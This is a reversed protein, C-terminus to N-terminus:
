FRMFQLIHITVVCTGIVIRIVRLTQDTLSPDKARLYSDIGDLILFIGFLFAFWDISIQKLPSNLLECHVGLCFQILHIFLICAGILIRIVRRIQAAATETRFKVIKYIGEIVPFTGAFFSFWDITSEAFDTEFLRCITTFAITILIAIGTINHLPKQM